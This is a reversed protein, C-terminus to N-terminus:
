KISNRFRQLRQAYVEKNNSTNTKGVSLSFEHCINLECTQFNFFYEMRHCNDVFSLVIGTLVQIARKGM